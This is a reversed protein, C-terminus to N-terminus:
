SGLGDKYAKDAKKVADDVTMGNVFDVRLTVTVTKIHKTNDNSIKVTCDHEDHYIVDGKEVVTM